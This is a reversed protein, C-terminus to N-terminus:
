FKGKQLDDVAQMLQQGLVRGGRPQVVRHEVEGAAMVVYTKEDDYRRLTSYGEVAAVDSCLAFPM